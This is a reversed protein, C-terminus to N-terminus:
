RSICFNVCLIRPAWCLYELFLNSVALFIPRSGLYSLDQFVLALMSVALFFPIILLTSRLARILYPWYLQTLITSPVGLEGKNLFQAKERDLVKRKEKHLSRVLHRDIELATGQKM